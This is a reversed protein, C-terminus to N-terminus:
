GVLPHRQRHRHPRHRCRCRGRRRCHFMGAIDGSRMQTSKNVLPNGISLRVRPEHTPILHTSSGLFSFLKFVRTTKLWKGLLATTSFTFKVLFFINTSSAWSKKCSSLKRCFSIEPVTKILSMLNM